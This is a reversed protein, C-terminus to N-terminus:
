YHALNPEPYNPYTMVSGPEEQVRGRGIVNRYRKEFVSQLTKGTPQGMGNFIQSDRRRPYVRGHNFGVPIEQTHYSPLSRCQVSSAASSGSDENEADYDPLPEDYDPEPEYEIDRMKQLDAVKLIIDKVKDKETFNQGLSLETISLMHLITGWRHVLMGVFQFLIIVAFFAFFALGFPQFTLPDQNADLRPIKVFLFERLEDQLLELQLFFAVWLATIMFFGFVVNNRLSKLDAAIKDKHEQDEALPHMYKKIMQLWFANEKASLPVIPGDGVAPCSLWGPHLPDEKRLWLPIRGTLAASSETPPPVYVSVAQDHYETEAPSPPEVTHRDLSSQSGRDGLRDKRLEVILEELLQDTKKKQTNDNVKFSEYIMSRIEKFMNGMESIIHRLGLWGIIGRKQSKKNKREEQERKERELDDKTKKKPAERTGWSVVNLNCLFYINLVLFSAPICIFYLLGSMVCGFEEPHMLASVIFIFALMILFVVNPSTITGDIATRVTGVLVVTMVISYMASLFAGVMLQTESKSYMCVFIYSVAPFLSFIHSQIISTKFVVSYAGAMMLLVTAPGLITSVLMAAQYFIYPSSLNDNIKVASKWTRLLDIINAVTSPGWRRRQNFFESFTEPAHTFADAAACYDIRHGQQILLTSLWRDEGTFHLLHDINFLQM